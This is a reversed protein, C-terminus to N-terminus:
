KAPLTFYFTSGHGPQSEVWIKGGHREVIKKCIALGIGTGPYQKRTHLRQFIQFIRDYYQPEMGIGNDRVSFTWAGDRQEAGIHIKPTEEGHFKIGNGILNQLLQSIQSADVRLTPLPDSTVEAHTEQMAVQLNLLARDLAAGLNAPAFTKGKTQVRSFALLDEILRQMRLAGDMASEIYHQGRADVKEPYRRQLLGVYGAVARLPEQLDHSAVYAFQELDQNSRALERAVNRVAEEARTREKIETQLLANASELESTRQKVLEELHERYNALETEAQFRRVAEGILPSMSELFEVTAPSFCATQKDALHILGLVEDKDRIPVIAMSAYGFKMCNGRYPKLQGPTLGKVFRLSNNFHFSGNQTTFAKEVEEFHGQAARTCCCQDSELSLTGELKLFEAPFGLSAKYPMNGEKDVLRIGLCEAGSWQRIVEAVAELYDEAATKQAFLALLANTVERRREGLRKETIDTCTGVWECIEGAQNFVPVGRVSVDRYEGDHRRL